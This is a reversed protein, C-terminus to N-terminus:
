RELVMRIRPEGDGFYNEMRETTIFGFSEYLRVAAENEPHTVLDIRPVSKLKELVLQIAGRGIGKKQFRPDVVLGSLYVHAPSKMEYSLEGVVAGDAEILYIEDRAFAEAWEKETLMASFLKTASVARELSILTPIDKVQAKKLTLNMDIEGIM